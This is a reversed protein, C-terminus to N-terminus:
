TEDGNDVDEDDKENDDEEIVYISDTQTMNLSGYEPVVGNLQAEM